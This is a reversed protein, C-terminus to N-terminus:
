PSASASTPGRQSRSARWTSVAASFIPAATGGGTAGPMPRGDDRGVWVAGSVGPAWGAFWADRAEDTTGTKGRVEVGDVAAGQATGHDVPARLWRAVLEGVPADFARRTEADEAYVLVGDADEVRRVIVPEGAVGGTAFTTYANAVELPSVEASGLAATLNAPIPAKLGARRAFDTVKAVGVDALAQVAIVNLSRALASEIGTAAGDYRGDANAPRWAGRAGRYSVRRNPWTADAGFAGAEVGAAYVFPKFTSGLQRHAQVARNYPSRAFDRGGVLARVGRTAPDILVAGVEADGLDSAAVAAQLADQARPDLSTHIRLGGRLLRERGVAAELRRRVVDSFWPYPDPDGQERTALRLPAKKTRRAAEPTLEGLRAMADLVRARRELCRELDAFPNLRDPAPLLGVLAAAEGVELAAADKGFNYRAAEQIGYRGDGFYVQNLYLELIEEKDLHHDLKRALFVELLKRELTKDASLYFSRALQQTLTSAGQSFRGTRVNTWMARVMGLYDLGEHEYFGEDESAVLAGPVFRPLDVLRVLTRREVRFVAIVSGDAAYVRSMQPATRRYDAVSLVEPLQTDLYLTLGWFSVVGVLALTLGLKVGVVVVRRLV